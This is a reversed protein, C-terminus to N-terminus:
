CSQRHLMLFVSGHLTGDSWKYKSKKDFPLAFFHEALRCCDEAGSLITGGEDCGTLDLYFFGRTKCAELMRRDVAPDHKLVDRLAITDLEITPFDTSDPFPPYIDPTFESQYTIDEAHPM